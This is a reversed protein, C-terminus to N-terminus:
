GTFICTSAKSHSCRFFSGQRKTIQRILGRAQVADEEVFSITDVAIDPDKGIRNPNAHHRTHKSNWWSYSMGISGILWLGLRDNAPGGLLIQRHAAEHGLFGVQTFIIGVAAAILLQFWSDGLLIFGTIAGGLALMLGVGVLGYFWTARRMLGLDQATRAIEGFTKGVSPYDGTRARTPILPSLGELRTATTTSIVSV